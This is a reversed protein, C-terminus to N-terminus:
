VTAAAYFTLIKNLGYLVLQPQFDHAIQLHRAISEADGGTLVVRLPAYKAALRHFLGELEYAAGGLGGQQLAEETSKGLEETLLSPEVLPLRATQRHMALLRMRIGPSINGGRYVKEATLLDATICTGADIILCNQAPYFALAGAIAAIRDKGLTDMTQYESAFPLVGKGDLSRVRYGTTQLKTIWEVPPEDAVSSFLVNKVSHNTLDKGIGTWDGSEFTASLLLDGNATFCGTKTRTNGIDLVYNM